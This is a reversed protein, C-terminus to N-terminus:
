RDLAASLADALTGHRFRYGTAELRAPVARQGYLLLEEGMAGLVTKLAFAPVPISTPRHVAAALVKTLEANTVPSPGTLNVPGNVEAHELAHRIGGVEDDISIWPQYQRGSGLPGGAGLDVVRRLRALLGGAGSLVLGTRLHVVRTTGEAAATAGEWQRCVDALFGSGLAATEDVVHDRTDGYYGVASASLLAPPADSGLEHITTALLRTPQLRSDLIAQKYTPTWRHDGVGAGSLNIVADTGVLHAPDLSAAAPDWRVEEAGTPPRRVLVRLEHGDTRLRAKLASGILGSAGTLVIKM